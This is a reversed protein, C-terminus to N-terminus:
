DIRNLHINGSITRLLYHGDGIPMKNGFISGYKSKSDITAKLSTVSIDGSQTIIEVTESVNILDCRGDNLTVKLNRYLGTAKINCGTGFITVNKQEPLKIRLAISIVKHASLKDNPNKFNPQFGGKVLVTSGEESVQLLLDKKYEGDITAEIVMENTKSTQLDIEFCNDADIQIFSISPNILTKKVTKQANVSNLFLFLM